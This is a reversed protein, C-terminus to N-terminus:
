LYIRLAVIYVYDLFEGLTLINKLGNDFEM